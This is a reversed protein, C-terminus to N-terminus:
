ENDERMQKFIEEAELSEEKMIKEYEEMFQKQILVIDGDEDYQFEYITGFWNVTRIFHKGDADKFYIQPYTELKM